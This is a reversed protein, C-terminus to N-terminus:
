QLGALDAYLIIGRHINARDWVYHSHNKQAACFPWSLFTPTSAPPSPVWTYLKVKRLQTWAKTATPVNAFHM